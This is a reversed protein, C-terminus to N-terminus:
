DHAFDGHLERRKQKVWEKADDIDKFYKKHYKGNKCVSAIFDGTWFRSVNKVGLSNHSQRPNNTTNESRNCVRLNAIRNDTKNGNIHDIEGCPFSGTVYLWALRHLRYDIRRIKTRMYGKGDVSGVKGGVQVRSNVKVLWTMKGTEPDYSILKRLEDATILNQGSM